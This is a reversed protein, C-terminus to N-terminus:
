NRTQTNIRVRYQLTGAFSTGLDTGIDHVFTHTTGTPSSSLNNIDEGEVGKRTATTWGTPLGIGTNYDIFVSATDSNVGSLNYTITIKKNITDVVQGAISGTVDGVDFVALNGISIGMYQDYDQYNISNITVNFLANPRQYVSGHDTRTWTTLDVTWHNVSQSYQHDQTLIELTGGKEDLEFTVGSIRYFGDPSVYKRWVPTNIGDWEIIMWPWPNTWSTSSGEYGSNTINVFYMKGNYTFAHGWNAPTLAAFGNQLGGFATRVKFNIGSPQSVPVTDDDFLLGLYMNNTTYPTNTIRANKTPITTTGTGGNAVTQYNTIIVSGGISWPQVYMWSSPYNNNNIILQHSGQSSGDGNANTTFTPDGPPAMDAFTTLDLVMTKTNTSIDWQYILGTKMLIYLKGNFQCAAHVCKNMSTWKIQNSSGILEYGFQYSYTEVSRSSTLQTNAKPLESSMTTTAPDFDIIGQRGWFVFSQSTGYCGPSYYFLRDDLDLLRPGMAYNSTYPYNPNRDYRNTGGSGAVGTTGIEYVGMEDARRRVFQPTNTNDYWFVYLYIYGREDTLSTNYYHRTALWIIRDKYNITNGWYEMNDDIAASTLPAVDTGNFVDIKAQKVGTVTNYARWRTHLKGKYVFVSNQRHRAVNNPTTASSSTVTTGITPTPWNVPTYSGKLNWVAGNWEMLRGDTWRTAYMKKM